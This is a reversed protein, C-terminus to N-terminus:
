AFEEITVVADVTFWTVEGWEKPGYSYSVDVIHSQTTLGRNNKMQTTYSDIYKRM